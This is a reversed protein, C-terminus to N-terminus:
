RAHRHHARGFRRRSSTRDVCSRLCGPCCPWRRARSRSRGRRADSLRRRHAMEGLLAEALVEEVVEVIAGPAFPKVIYRDTQGRVARLLTEPADDATMDFFPPQLIGAPFVIENLTPSYYANVTPPTMGWENRDVPKGIKALQRRSEFVTARRVNGFFDPLPERRMAIWYTVARAAPVAYASARPM